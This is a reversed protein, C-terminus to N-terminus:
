KQTNAFVMLGSAHSLSKPKHCELFRYANLLGIKLFCQNSPLRTINVSECMRLEKILEWNYMRGLYIWKQKWICNYLLKDLSKEIRQSQKGLFGGIYIPKWHLITLFETRM